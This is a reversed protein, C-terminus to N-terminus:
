PSQFNQDHISVNSASIDWMSEAYHYKRSSYKNDQKRESKFPHM